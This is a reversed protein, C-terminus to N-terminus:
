VGQVTVVSLKRYVLHLRACAFLQGIVSLGTILDGFLWLIFIPFYSGCSDYCGNVGTNVFASWYIQGTFFLLGIFVMLTIVLQFVRVLMSIFATSKTMAGKRILINSQVDNYIFLAGLTLSMLFVGYSSIFDYRSMIGVILWVLGAIPVGCGSAINLGFLRTTKGGWGQQVFEVSSSSADPISVWNSRVAM